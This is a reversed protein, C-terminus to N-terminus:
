EVILVYEADLQEIFPKFLAILKRVASKRALEFIEPTQQVETEIDDNCAKIANGLESIEDAKEKVFMFELSNEDLDIELIEIEPVTVIIEKNNRDISFSVEDLRVGAKVDAEYAIYYDTKKENKENKVEAIGNYVATATYFEKIKIIKELTSATIIEPESKDQASVIFLLSIAALLLFLVSGILLTRKKKIWKRLKKKMWKQPPIAPPIKMEM